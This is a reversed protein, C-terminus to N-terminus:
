LLTQHPNLYPAEPLMGAVSNWTPQKLLLHESFVSHVM